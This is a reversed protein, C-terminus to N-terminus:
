PDRSYINSESIVYDMKIDFPHLKLSFNMITMEIAFAIKKGSFDALFKDYYGAGFGYRGGSKDFVTGPVIVLDINAKQSLVCKAPIPEMIEYLGLQMQNNLNTIKYIELEKQKPFSRPLYLNKSHIIKQLLPTTDFEGTSIKGYYALINQSQKYVPFNYLLKLIKNFKLSLVDLSIRKRQQLIIKRLKSPNKQYKQFENEM